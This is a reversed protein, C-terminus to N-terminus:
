STRNQIISQVIGLIKGAKIQKIQKIQKELKGHQNKPLLTPDAGKSILLDILKIYSIGSAISLSTEGHLKANLDVGDTILANTAEWSEWEIAKHLPTEGFINKTNLHAGQAVLMGIIVKSDGEVAAHLPIDLLDNKINIDAGHKILLMVMEPLNQEAALHLPTGWSGNASVDAGNAILLEVIKKCNYEVALHLLTDGQDDIQNIDHGLDLLLRLQNLNDNQIAQELPNM